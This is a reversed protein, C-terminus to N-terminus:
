TYIHVSCFYYIQTLGHMSMNYLYIKIHRHNLNQIISSSLYSVEVISCDVSFNFYEFCFLLIITMLM